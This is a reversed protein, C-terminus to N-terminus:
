IRRKQTKLKAEFRDLIEEDNPVPKILAVSDRGVDYWRSHYDPLRIKLDMRDKPTFAQVIDNDRKDNLHFVAYFDAESFIFRSCQTPRQTLCILPLRKSRGQTLIAQFAPSRQAIMYGEDVYLGIRERQWVKWLWNEMEAVEHPLPRIVYIGPHKPIDNFGIERAKEIGGILDDGKYDVIVFPQKAFDAHSLLWVGFRTKGSGTRGIVTVRQTLNPMRFESM